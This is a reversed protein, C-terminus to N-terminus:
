DYDHHSNTWKGGKVNGAGYKEMYGQTVWREAQAPSTAHVWPRRPDFCDRYDMVRAQDPVYKRTWAAGQGSFHQEARRDPNSSQGVYFKPNEGYQAKTVDKDMEGYARQVTTQILLNQIM